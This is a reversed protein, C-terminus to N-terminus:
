LGGPNVALWDPFVYGDPTDAFPGFHPQILDYFIRYAEGSLHLGDPVLHALAGRKGGPFGLPPGTPDFDPTKSVAADMIAKYLDVLVVGPVRQAVERAAESYCSSVAAERSAQAHGKELDLETIRIQDLPPPVVLLIKPNHAVIHRHTIIKTLNDKYEELPVHQSTTPLSVCADNVGLLVVVCDIKPTSPSVPLFIKPLLNLANRTTYGSFGRNIVDLRRMCLTQLAAQFSFGDQVECSLELLSDGFLVVQNYPFQTESTLEVSM